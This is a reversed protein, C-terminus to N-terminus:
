NILYNKKSKINLKKIEEQPNYHIWSIMYPQVSERFLAALMQNKNEFTKGSKLIELNKQVEEMQTILEHAASRSIFQIGAFDLILHHVGELESFIANVASRGSIQEVFLESLKILRIKEM